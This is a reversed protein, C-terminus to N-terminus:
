GKLVSPGGRKDGKGLFEKVKAVGFGVAQELEIRPPMTREEPNIEVDVVWPRSSALAEGLAGRLDALTAVRRGEGGCARAVAAFDIDHLHTQFEPFGQVEQEMQILGLKHNNFVV